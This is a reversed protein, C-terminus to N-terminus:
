VWVTNTPSSPAPGSVPQSIPTTPAKGTFMQQVLERPDVNKVAAFGLLIGGFLLLMGPVNLNM